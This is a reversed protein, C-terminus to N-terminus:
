STKQVFQKMGSAVTDSVASSAASLDHQAGPDSSQDYLERKPAEIYLYKGARWSQLPSWGFDRHAYDTESYAPRDGFGATTRISKNTPTLLDQLVQGQMAAPVAVRAEKLITPAVDVLRVRHGINKGALRERPFKVLLPVHIT